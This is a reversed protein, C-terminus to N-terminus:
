NGDANTAIRAESADQRALKRSPGAQELSDLVLGPTLVVPLEIAQRPKGAPVVINLPVADRGFRKLDAAIDADYRTYDAKIPVVGLDRMRGRVEDSSFVLKKNAQCTLCWKATYDVYVTYGADALQEPLGKSFAIWPVHDGSWDISAVLADIESANTPAAMRTPEEPTYQGMALWGGGVAIMLAVVYALAKRGTRPNFQSKGYVWAALALFALFAVTWVVGSEGLLGGVVWLLWVVTGILLFGMFQKFTVMWNGPKPMHKMWAPKATLLVYPSAMGLGVATFVLFVIAFPQALAYAIAPALLPATCPTALLTALVGKMFAGSFGERDAAGALKSSATGPLVVEFVGFLSLSFVFMVVIMSLVFAPVQFFAGWGRTTETAHQLGLIGIALVWFSLIIGASFVLGLQFVRKPEEDAQQVFSLIKISIVPLVCPMINLILGGLFGAVLQGILGFGALWDSLGAGGEVNRSAADTDAHQVPAAEAPEPASASESGHDSQTGATASPEPSGATSRVSESTVSASWPVTEPPFCRGNDDCAQYRLLGAVAVDRKLTPAAVKVPIRVQIKGAYESIKGLLKDTRIHPEPWQPEGYDFGEVSEIFLETPIFFEGLPKHSQTHFGKKIDVDLIVEFTDGKSVTEKSAHANITSYKVKDPSVPLDRAAAAFVAQTKEDGAPKPAAATNLKIELKESGPFCADKCVLWRVDANLTVPEGVKLDQPPTITALLVPRGELINTVLGVAEHKSPVPFRLEGFEFGPPGSWNIVPAAGSDGPNKWYIHFEDPIDFKVAVEFPQGPAIASASVHYEIGVNPAKTQAFAAGCLPVLTAIILSPILKRTAM